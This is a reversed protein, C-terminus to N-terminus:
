EWFLHRLAHNSMIVKMLINWRTQVTGTYLSKDVVPDIGTEQMVFQHITELLVEGSVCTSNPDMHFYGYRYHSSDGYEDYSGGYAQGLCIRILSDVASKRIELSQGTTVCAVLLQRLQIHEDMNIEDFEGFSKISQMRVAEDTELAYTDILQSLFKTDRENPGDGKKAFWGLM